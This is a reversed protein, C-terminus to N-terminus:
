SAASRVLRLKIGQFSLSVRVLLSRHRSSRARVNIVVYVVHLSTPFMPLYIFVFGMAGISTEYVTAGEDGSSHVESTM